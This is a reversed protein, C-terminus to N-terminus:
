NINRINTKNILIKKFLIIDTTCINKEIIVFPSFFSAYVYVYIVECTM